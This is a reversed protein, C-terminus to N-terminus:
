RENLTLNQAIYNKELCNPINPTSKIQNIHKQYSNHSQTKNPSLYFKLLIKDKEHGKKM